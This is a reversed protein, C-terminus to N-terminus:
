LKKEVTKPLTDAFRKLDNLEFLIEKKSRIMERFVRKVVEDENEAEQEQYRKVDGEVREIKINIMLLLQELDTM